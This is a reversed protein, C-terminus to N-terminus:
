SYVVSFSGDAGQVVTVKTGPQGTFDITAHNASEATFDIIQGATYAGDAVYFRVVPTINFTQNPVADFDSQQATARPRGQTEFLGRSVPASADGAALPVPESFRNTVDDYTLSWGGGAQVKPLHAPAAAGPDVPPQFTVFETDTDSRNLIVISYTTM